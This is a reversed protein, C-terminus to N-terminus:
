ARDVEEFPIGAAVLRRRMDATGVGGPFVLGFDPQWEDIMGQNRRTGATVDYPKGSRSYRVVADPHDIDDWPAPCPQVPVGNRIAWVRARKDLGDAEGEILLTIPRREHLEDLASFVRATDRYDRGGTVVLRM